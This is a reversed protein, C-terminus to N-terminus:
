LIKILFDGFRNKLFKNISKNGIHVIETEIGEKELEQFVMNIAHNTNGNKRPSGNIAIVKM